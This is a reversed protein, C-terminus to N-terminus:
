WYVIQKQNCNLGEALNLLLRLWKKFAINLSVARRSSCFTWYKVNQSKTTILCYVSKPRDLFDNRNKIECSCYKRLNEERNWVTNRTFITEWMESMILEYKKSFFFFVFCFVINPALTFTKATSNSCRLRKAFPERSLWWSWCDRSNCLDKHAHISNM